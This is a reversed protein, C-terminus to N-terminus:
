GGFPRALAPGASMARINLECCDLAKGSCPAWLDGSSCNCPQGAGLFLVFRRARERRLGLLASEGFSELPLRQRSSYPSSFGPRRPASCLRARREASYANTSGGREPDSGRAAQAHDGVSEEELFRHSPGQSTVSWPILAGNAQSAQGM